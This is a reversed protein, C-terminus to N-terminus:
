WDDGEPSDVVGDREHSLGDIALDDNIGDRLRFLLRPGDHAASLVDYIQYENPLHRGNTNGPEGGGVKGLSGEPLEFDFYWITQAMVLSTELYAMAKGTCARTGVSFPTFAERMVKLQQESTESALWREPVFSYPQPFYDENHHIAYTNVGIQTGPPVVHGDVILPEPCLPPVERWPTGPIPPAIRLAEDICARLYHCSSLKQGSKIEEATKFTSRIEQQLRAARSKDRALYFLLASMATSVSFAGAPFFVVAESWIDSMRVGETPDSAEGNVQMAAAYLDHTSPKDDSVRRTIVKELFKKYRELFTGNLYRIVHALRLQHLRFYQMRTNSIYNGYYMGRMMFRNENNTQLRLRSGFSLLGVIDCALYDLQTSMNVPKPGDCASRLLKLFVDIQELMQPEFRRMAGENIVQGVVKRKTKHAEPDIVNFSNFVGPSQLSAPGQTLRPLRQSRRYTKSAFSWSLEQTSSPALSLGPSCLGVIRM